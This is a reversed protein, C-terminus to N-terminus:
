GDTPYNDKCKFTFKVLTIQWDGVSHESATGRPRKATPLNGRDDGERSDILSM